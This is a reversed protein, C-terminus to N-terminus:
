AGALPPLAEASLRSEEAAPDFDDALVGRRRAEWLLTRRSVAGLEFLRCLSALDGQAGPLLGFDRNMELSGGDPLGAWAALLGFAGELADGLDLVLSMLGSMEQSEEIAKATATVQGPRSLLFAMGMLEAEREIRALDREGSEIAAGSPEVYTFRAGEQSSKLIMNPGVPVESQFEDAAVGTVALMAFRATTLCNKQDSASQWGEITKDALDMLPPEATLFGSQNAYFTVLPIVPLSLAGEQIVEWGDKGEQWLQFRGPEFVRIREVLRGGWPGDPEEVMERVRLQTLVERGDVVATRWGIVAQAELRVMYPRPRAGGQGASQCDVLIHCLGDRLGALFVQRAFVQLNNGALDIDEAWDRLAPPVDEGLVLPRSFARGTLGTVTKKFYNTLFSRDRRTRWAAESEYTFKPLYTKGAERLAAAGRMLVEVQRWAPLCARYAATPTWVQDLNM